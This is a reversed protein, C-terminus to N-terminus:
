GCATGFYAGIAETTPARQKEDTSTQERPRIHARARTSSSSDRGLKPTDNRACLSAGAPPMGTRAWVSPAPSCLSVIMTAASPERVFTVHSGRCRCNQSAGRQDGALVGFRNAASASPARQLQGPRRRLPRQPDAVEGIDRQAFAALAPKCVRPTMQTVHPDSLSASAPCACCRDARARPARRSM